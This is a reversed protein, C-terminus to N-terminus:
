SLLILSSLNPPPPSPPRTSSPRRSHYAFNSLSRLFTLTRDLCINLERGVSQASLVSLSSARSSSTLKTPHTQPTDLLSSNASCLSHLSYPLHNLCVTLRATFPVHLRQFAKFLPTVHYKKSKFSYNQRIHSFYVILCPPLLSVM